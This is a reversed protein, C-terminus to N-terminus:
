RKVKPGTVVVTVVEDRAEDSFMYAMMRIRQHLPQCARQGGSMFMAEDNTSQGDMSVRFGLVLGNRWRMISSM